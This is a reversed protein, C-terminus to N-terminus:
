RGLTCAGVAASPRPSDRETRRRAGFLTPVLPPLRALFVSNRWLDEGRMRAIVVRVKKETTYQRRTARRIDRVIKEAEESQQEVSSRM